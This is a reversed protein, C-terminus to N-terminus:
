LGQQTPGAGAKAIKLSVKSWTDRSLHDWKGSSCVSARLLWLTWPGAATVPASVVVLSWHETSLARPGWHLPARQGSEWM